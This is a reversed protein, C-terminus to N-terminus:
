QMHMYVHLDGRRYTCVRGPPLRSQQHHASGSQHAALGPGFDLLAWPKHQHLTQPLCAGTEDLGNQLNFDHGKSKLVKHKVKHM